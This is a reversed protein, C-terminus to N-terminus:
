TTCKAHDLEIELKESESSLFNYGKPTEDILGRFDELQLTSHSRYRREFYAKVITVIQEKDESSVIEAHTSRAKTTWARPIGISFILIFALLIARLKNM